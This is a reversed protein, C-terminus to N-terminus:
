ERFGGFMLLAVVIFPSFLFGMIFSAQIIVTTSAETVWKSESLLKIHEAIYDLSGFHRILIWATGLTIISSVIFYIYVYTM